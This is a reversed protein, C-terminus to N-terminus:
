LKLKLQRLIRSNRLRKQRMQKSTCTPVHSLDVAIIFSTFDAHDLKFCNIVECNSNDCLENVHRNRCKDFFKCHGFQFYKCLNEAAMKGESIIRKRNEYFEQKLHNAPWSSSTADKIQQAFASIIPTTRDKYNFM